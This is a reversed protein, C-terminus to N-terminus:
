TSCVKIFQLNVPSSSICHLLIGLLNKFNVYIEYIYEKEDYKQSQAKNSMNKHVLIDLFVALSVLGVSICSM